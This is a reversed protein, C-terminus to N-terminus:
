KIWCVSEEQTNETYYGNVSM